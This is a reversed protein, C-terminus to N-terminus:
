PQKSKFCQRSPARRRVEPVFQSGDSSYGCADTLEPVRYGPKAASSVPAGRSFPGFRTRKTPVERVLCPRGTVRGGVESRLGPELARVLQEVTVCSM